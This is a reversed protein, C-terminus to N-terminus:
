INFMINNIFNGLHVVQHFVQHIISVLYCCKQLVVWCLGFHIIRIEHLSLNESLWESFRQWQQACTNGFCVQIRAPPVKQLHINKVWCQALLDNLVAWGKLWSTQETLNSPKQPQQQSGWDESHTFHHVIEQQLTHGFYLSLSANSCFSVLFMNWTFSIFPGFKSFERSIRHKEPLFLMPCSLPDSDGWSFFYKRLM